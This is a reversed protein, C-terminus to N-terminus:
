IFTRLDGYGTAVVGDDVKVGIGVEAGLAFRVLRM